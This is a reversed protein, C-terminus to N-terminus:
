LHEILTFPFCSITLFDFNIFYFLGKFCFLDQCCLISSSIFNLVTRFASKWCSLNLRPNSSAFDFYGMCSWTNVARMRSFYFFSIIRGSLDESKVISYENLLFSKRINCNVQIIAKSYLFFSFLSVAQRLFVCWGFIGFISFFICNILLWAENLQCFCQLDFCFIHLRLGHHQFWSATRWALLFRCLVQRCLLKEFFPVYKQEGNALLLCFFLSV